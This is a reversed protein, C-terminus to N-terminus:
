APEAPVALCRCGPHAPPYLDGTPFPEGKPVGGALANDDCDPCPADGDDVLWRFASGDAAAEALGRSFAVVVFHRSADAIRQTKWERYCARIREGIDAEDGGEDFAPELRGRIQRVMDSAFETAVDDVDAKRRPASGYFGAGAREAAQLDELAAVRYRDLHEAEGLLVGEATPTGRTRRLRDLAENQEDSLVRKLRRAFQREIEDTTADRRDLLDVDPDGSGGEVEAEDAEDAGADEVEVEPEAEAEPEGAEARIRAFLADADDADGAPEPEADPEPEPEDAGIVEAEVEAVLEAELEAEAEELIAEAEAVLEEDPEVVDVGGPLEPDTPLDDIPDVADADSAADDAPADDVPGDVEGVGIGPEPPADLELAKRDAGPETIARPDIVADQLAQHSVDIRAAVDTLTVALADRTAALQELQLRAARRRDALDAIVRERYERAEQVMDRGQARADELIVEAEAEAEAHRAAAEAEARRRTEEADAHAESRVRDAEARAEDRYADAGGQVDARYSDATARTEDAYSDADSRARSAYADADSRIGASVVEAEATREGLVTEAESRMRDADALSRERLEAVEADVKARLSSSYEDAELRVRTAYQDAAERVARADADAQAAQADAAEAAKTRIEAAAKRATDLVHATEEGLMKTVADEDLETVDSARRELEVLRRELDAQRTNAERAQSALAVLYARVEDVEYGKRVKTFAHAAIADPDLAARETPDSAM